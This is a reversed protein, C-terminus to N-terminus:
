RLIVLTITGVIMAVWGVIVAVMGERMLRQRSARIAAILRDVDDNDM